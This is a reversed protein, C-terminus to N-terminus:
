EAESKWKLLSIAVLEAKVLKIDEPAGFGTINLHRKHPKGDLSFKLSKDFSILDDINFDARAITSRASHPDFFLKAIKWIIVDKANKTRYVSMDKRTKNIYFASLKLLDPVRASVKKKDNIFHTLLESAELEKTFPDTTFVKFCFRELM